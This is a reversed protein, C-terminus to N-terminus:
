LQPRCDENNTDIVLWQNYTLMRINKAYAKIFRSRCLSRFFFLSDRKHYQKLLFDYSCINDMSEILSARAKKLKEYDAINRNNEITANISNLANSNIRTLCNTALDRNSLVAYCYKYALDVSCGTKPLSQRIMGTSNAISNIPFILSCVILIIFRYIM